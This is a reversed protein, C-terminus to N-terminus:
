LKPPRWNLVIILSILAILVVTGILIMDDRQFHPARIIAIFFVGLFLIIIVLVVILLM